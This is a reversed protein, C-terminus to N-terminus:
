RRKAALTWNYCRQAITKDSNGKKKCRWAYEILGDKEGAVTKYETASTLNKAGMACIQSTNVIGYLAKLPKTEIMEITEVAQNAKLVDKPDSFRSGCDRCRWRQIQDRFMQYRIGDRWVKKSGCKPCSPNPNSTGEDGSSPLKGNYLEAKGFIGDPEITEETLEGM